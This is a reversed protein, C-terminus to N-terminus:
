NSQPPSKHKRRPMKTVVLGVLFGLLLALLIIVFLSADFRWFLLRVPVAGANQILVIACLLGAAMMSVLRWNM